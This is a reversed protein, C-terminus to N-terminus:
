SRLVSAPLLQTSGASLQKRLESLYTESAPLNAMVSDVYINTMEM